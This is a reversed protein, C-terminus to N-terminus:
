GRSGSKRRRQGAHVADKYQVGGDHFLKWAGVCILAIAGNTMRVGTALENPKHQPDLWIFNLFMAAWFACVPQFVDFLLDKREITGRKDDRVNFHLLVLAALDCVLVPSHTRGYLGLRAQELDAQRERCLEGPYSLFVRRGYGRGV